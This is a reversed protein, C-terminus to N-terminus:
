KIERIYGHCVGDKFQGDVFYSNKAFIARGFGHPKSDKNVM